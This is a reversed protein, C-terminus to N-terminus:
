KAQRAKRIEAAEQQRTLKAKPKEPTAEGDEGELSKLLENDEKPAKEAAKKLDEKEQTLTEVKADGAAKVEELAKVVAAVGEDNLDAMASAVNSAVSKDLDFEALAEAHDKVKLQKKLDAIEQMLQESMEDQGKNLNQNDVGADQAEVKASTSPATEDVSEANALLKAKDLDTLEEGIEELIQKEDEFLERSKTMSIPENHGSAAGGQGYSTYAYHAARHTFIFDTILRKPEQSDKLEDLFNKYLDDSKLLGKAGMSLGGIRGEARLNYLAENHFKVRGLPMNAKILTGDELVKDEENVWEDVIEFGKTKHIHFLSYQVSGAERGERLAKVLNKPGEIPDAYADGHGDIEDGAIYLPEIVELSNANFQKLLNTKPKVEVERESGGFSSLFKKILGVEQETFDSM